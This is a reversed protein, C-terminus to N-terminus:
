SISMLFPIGAVKMVDVSLTVDKHQQMISVPIDTGTVRVAPPQRRVTKGKLSGIDPGWIFEANNIDLVTVPCNPILGEAVYRIFDKTSPRGIRQQLVRAKEAQNFDYASLKSKNNEVTTILMTGSEERDVTDFYYLRRSAEKFKMIKEGDKHVHFCNDMASDITVRYRERVRSLSLINAIGAPYYWVWGYGPLYGKWNTTRAGANCRITMVTEVVQHINSLLAGNCFM